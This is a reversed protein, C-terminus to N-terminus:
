TKSQREYKGKTGFRSNRWCLTKDGAARLKLSLWVYWTLIHFSFMNRSLKPGNQKQKKQKKKWMPGHECHNTSRYQLWKVLVHRSLEPFLTVNLNNGSSCTISPTLDTIATQHSKCRFCPKLISRQEFVIMYPLVHLKFWKGTHPM